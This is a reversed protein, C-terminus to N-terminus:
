CERSCLPVHDDITRLKGLTTRTRRRASRFTPFGRIVNISRRAHRPPHRSQVDLFPQETSSSPGLSAVEDVPGVASM